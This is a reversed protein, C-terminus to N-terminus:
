TLTHSWGLGLEFRPLWDALWDVVPGPVLGLMPGPVSTPVPVPVPVAPVPVPCQKPWHGLLGEM